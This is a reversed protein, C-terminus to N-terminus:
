AAEKDSPAVATAKVPLYCTVTTGENEVSHLEVTGGHLEVISRVLTLGLGAGGARQNQRVQVFPSFIKAQDEASIGIGTDQVSLAIVPMHDASKVKEARITITGNEPTFKIANSLLNLLIQKLRREDAQMTGLTKPAEMKVTINKKRAWDQTLDFMTKVLTHLDLPRIQLALQGADITSLDLIDNILGILKTGAEIMGQAYETQRENLPGFYEKELVEAFGMMANLPTRLQYSVNALFDVKLREAQELAANKERLALEVRLSDTIDNFRNLIGGDPLPVTAYEVVRGDALEMRGHQEQRTLAFHRMQEKQQDRDEPKFFQQMQELLTSAHPTTELDTRNFGWLQAYAPNFLQLRGSSNWVALGEALNDLTARQVAILTNYSSELELRSTVDEFTMFLGGLPHPVVLMRIATDDPLHMMEEHPRILSTFRDIWQKKYIKFDAQEPLRRKQRLVEMMDNMSPKTDLWFEDLKFLDKFADNYFTIETKPNFIAIGTNLSRLLESTSARFRKMESQMEELATMDNAYGLTGENERLYHEQLELLRREGGLIVHQRDVQTEQEERARQALNRALPSKQGLLERQETVTTAGDGDVMKAYTQNCWILQGGMDRQWLPLPLQDLLMQRQHVLQEMKDLQTELNHHHQVQLSQDHLWILLYPTQDKDSYIDAHLIYHRPVEPVLADYHPRGRLRVSFPQQKDRLENLVKADEVTFFATFDDWSGSKQMFYSRMDPHALVLEDRKWVTFPLPAKYLLHQLRAQEQQLRDWGKGAPVLWARLAQRIKPWFNPQSNPANLWLDSM